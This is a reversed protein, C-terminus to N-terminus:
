GAVITKGYENNIERSGKLFFPYIDWQIFSKMVCNGVVEKGKHESIRRLENNEFVREV